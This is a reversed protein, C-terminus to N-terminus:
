ASLAHDMPLGFLWQLEPFFLPLKRLAHDGDFPPADQVADDVIRDPNLALRVWLLPEPVNWLGARSLADCGKAALTEADLDAMSLEDGICECTDATEKMLCAYGADGLRDVLAARVDGAICRRVRYLDAYLAVVGLVRVIDDRALLAIRNARHAFASLPAWRLGFVAALLREGERTPPTPSLGIRSWALEVWRPHLQGAVGAAKTSAAQVLRRILASPDGEDSM